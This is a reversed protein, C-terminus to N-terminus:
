SSCRTSSAARRRRRRPPPHERRRGGCRRHGPRHRRRPRGDVDPQDDRRVAVHVRVDPHRGDAADGRRDDDAALRPPVRAPRRHRPLRRDPDRRPRQRDVGRRVRALDYVRNIRIGAPLTKALSALAADVGPRAPRPHQRRDAALHQDVVADRGNGTVLLTRDPAGPTVTGLDAVRITAGNKVMVPADRSRTPTRGCARRWRWTSCARSRSAASRCCRTRRRSRTPRRRRRDARRRDAEGPDLISKSRARTAPRCRSPARRRARARAGAERRLERLRLSRGDAAHGTLSLIFVPFIAPTMGSSRCSPTRGAARRTIEAVRNQVMQLAVVMDTSPDFQASIEAAGRISKSRVRRIGPVAMVGARDAADRHAVDVAAAAHGLARRHRHAPVAAASLHQEAARARRHRRRRRARRRRLVAARSHRLALAAVNM